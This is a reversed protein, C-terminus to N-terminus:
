AAAFLLAISDRAWDLLPFGSNPFIGLYLVAVACVALVFAEGTALEMRPKEDGPERMYMLVPVRLYYYVSVVSMLVGLIALPVEGASVAASFVLIKGMFGATGPIGALSVMFLTMLAALGPRSQALGALSEMRECDAGRNALAVIVAFAGLNMFLYCVLYFVVASYGEATGPVFGILLYGAHAISSYALLRKINDQIVAMVNGVVMTLAALVWLVNAMADGLPEFALAVVRLLAGFAALKVTVSMFATVASPAGEYVDPTWQHFPVSSIKFAFGVVVLGRGAVALPNAPDFAARIAAFSTSGAVGYLLAIGYLLIASAFSGILFYKMASENSRLKRRDFGALVYIPISMLELGLFVPLMDVAPIMLMMGSTAFLVLAYFEGHNIRLEDLYAISLACSLLAAFAVVATLFGSYRDLQFMPNDPNFVEPAASGAHVIAMYAAIGLFLMSFVALVSGIYSETVPRGLFTTARSLLVEGLLVVMAGLAVWAIPGVVVLHLDPPTM